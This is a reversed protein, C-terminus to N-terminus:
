LPNFPPSLYMLCSCRQNSKGVLSGSSLSVCVAGATYAVITTVSRSKCWLLLMRWCAGFLGKRVGVCVGSLELAM